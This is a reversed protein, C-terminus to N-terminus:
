YLATSTEKRVTLVQQEHLMWPDTTHSAYRGFHLTKWPRLKHVSTEIKAAFRTNVFSKLETHTIGAAETRYV